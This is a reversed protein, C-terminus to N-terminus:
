SLLASFITFVLNLLFLSKFSFSLFLLLNREATPFYGDTSGVINKFLSTVTFSLGFFFIAKPVKVKNLGGFGVSLTALNVTAKENGILFLTKYGLSESTNPSWQLPSGVLLMKMRRMFGGGHRFVLASMLFAKSSSNSSSFVFVKRHLLPHPESHITSFPNHEEGAGSFTGM